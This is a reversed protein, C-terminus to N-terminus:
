SSALIRKLKIIIYYLTALKRAFSTRRTGRDGRKRTARYTRIIEKKAEGKREGGTEDEEKRMTKM